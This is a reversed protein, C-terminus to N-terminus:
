GLEKRMEEELRKMGESIRQDLTNTEEAVAEGRMASELDNLSEDSIDGQAFLSDGAADMVTTLTEELTEARAMAMQVDQQMKLKTPRGWEYFDILKLKFGVGHPRILINESHVDSHYEGMNHVDELGCVLHHLVNM